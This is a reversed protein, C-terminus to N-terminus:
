SRGISTIFMFRKLSPSRLTRSVKSTGMVQPQLSESDGDPGVLGSVPSTAWSVGALSVVLYLVARVINQSTVTMFAGFVTPIAIILFVWNAVESFWSSLDVTM